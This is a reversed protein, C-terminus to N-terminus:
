WALQATPATVLGDFTSNVGLVSVRTLTGTPRTVTFSWQYNRVAGNDLTPFPLGLSGLYTAPLATQQVWEADGVVGSNFLLSLQANTFPAPFPTRGVNIAQNGGAGWAIFTVTRTTNTSVVTGASISVTLSDFNGATAYCVGAQVQTSLIPAGFEGSVGVFGAQEGTFLGNFTQGAAPTSAVSTWGNYVRGVVLDPRRNAAGTGCTAALEVVGQSFLTTPAASATMGQMNRIFNAVSFPVATPMGGNDAFKTHVAPNERNAPVYVENGAGLVPYRLGIRGGVIKVSDQASAPFAVTAGGSYPGTVSNLGTIRPVSGNNVYVQKRLRASANGAQDRVQAQAIYYGAPTTAGFTLATTQAIAIPAGIVMAYVPNQVTVLFAGASTTFPTAASTATAGAATPDLTTIANQLWGTTINPRLRVLSAKMASTTASWAVFGSLSDVGTITMTQGAGVNITATDRTAVGALTGTATIVPAQKDVGFTALVHTGTGVTQGITRANGLADKAAAAVNYAVNDVTNLLQTPVTNAADVVLTSTTTYASSILTSGPVGGTGVPGAIFQREIAAAGLSVGSDVPATYGISFEYAANVWNTENLLVADRAIVMAGGTTPAVNDLRVILNQDPQTSLAPSNLFGGAVTILNNNQSGGLSGSLENTIAAIMPIEGGRRYMADCGPTVGRNRFEYGTGTMAHVSPNAIISGAAVAVTSTLTGGVNCGAGGFTTTASRLTLGNQYIVPVASISLGGRRWTYGGADNASTAGTVTLTGHFGSVNTFNLNQAVTATVATSGGAVTYLKVQVPNVGNFWAPTGAVVSAAFAPFLLDTTFQGKYHESHVSFTVMPLTAQTAIAEDAAFRLAASQASTFSQSGALVNNVYLEVKTVVQNGPNFNVRVDFQGMVADPNVPTNFNEKTISAISVTAPVIPVAAQVVVSGCGKKGADVTSAACIAVGPTAAVATVVGSTSVSAKSADSSTWTVTTALGADANVAATMAITQGVTLTATLPAVEVSNIKAVPTVPPTPAAVTVKDGCAALFAAGAVFIMKRSFNMSDGTSTASRYVDFVM